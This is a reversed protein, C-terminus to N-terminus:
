PCVGYIGQFCLGGMLNNPDLMETGADGGPIVAQWQSLATFNNGGNVQYWQPTGGLAAYRNNSWIVGPCTQQNMFVLEATGFQDSSSLFLNDAISGSAPCSFAAIAASRTGASPATNWIVNHLVYLAKTNADAAYFSIGGATGDGHNGPDGVVDGVSINDQVTNPGWANGNVSGMWTAFGPGANDHSYNFELVSNQTGGDLDFGGGDCGGARRQGHVENHRVTIYSSNYVWNGYANGCLNNNVGGNRVINQEDLVNVSGNSILIGSGSGQPPQLNARGGINEVVNGKVTSNQWGQMLIGFDVTTTPTSGHLHNNTFQGSAPNSQSAQVAWILVSFDSIDMGTVTATVSGGSQPGLYIGGSNEFSSLQHVGGKITGGPLSIQANVVAIGWNLNGGSLDLTYPGDITLPLGGMPMFNVSFGDLNNAGRIYLCVANPTGTTCPLTSAIHIKDGGYFVHGDNVPANTKWAMSPSTGPNTDLGNVPDIWYETAFANGAFLALFASLIAAKM